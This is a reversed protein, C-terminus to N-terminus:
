RVQLKNVVLSGSKVFVGVAGSWGDAPSTKLNESATPIGRVHVNALGRDNSEFKIPVRTGQPYEPRHAIGREEVRFDLSVHGVRVKGGAVDIRSTIANWGGPGEHARLVLFAETGETAEIEIILTCYKYQDNSTLLFNGGQGASIVIGLSNFKIATPDGIQWGKVHDPSFEPWYPGVPPSEGRELLHLEGARAKLRRLDVVPPPLTPNPQKLNSPSIKTGPIPPLDNRPVDSPNQVTGFTMGSTGAAKKELTLPIQVGAQEWEGIAMTGGPAIKGSFKASLGRVEFELSEDSSSISDVRLGKSFQDPSDFTATIAGSDSRNLNLSLRLLEGKNTRLKGEWNQGVQKVVSDPEVKPKPALTAVTRSADKVTDDTVPSENSLRIAQDVSKIVHKGAHEGHASIKSKGNRNTIALVGAGLVLVGLILGVIANTSKSRNGRTAEFVPDTDSLGSQNGIKILNEWGSERVTTETATQARDAPRGDDTPTSTPLAVRRDSSQIAVTQNSHSVEPRRSKLELSGRRFFPKLAEAVEGPTQFRRTPDKAMMKAVLAALESPVEPRVFNLPDAERSIHAQYIDYLSNAKFPPRGTLLYYLTAGLSYIDARIDANPADLIQEPAIYDPTGLAQGELTLGGDIKEERTVRALGFDLVKVTAKDGKRSLMLNHPKIDRHVLGEEHAHQLGLAAQYIFNCAHAVPLQGKAKVMKSLDLGEVHEMSFVISEGVRTAAFATVINAHRLKAVARIERLFRDLVGPKEMIQRSMVKLVEERGMLKNHALYVVGMGGRGLEKKIEYDPNEAFGPPLTDAPPPPLPPSQNHSRTGDPQSSGFASQGARAGRVRDLFSDSSMEMVRKQCNSCDELHKQVAQATLDDLKGLGFSSLTQDSPHPSSPADM